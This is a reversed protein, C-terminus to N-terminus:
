RCDVKANQHLLQHAVTHLAVNLHGSVSIPEYIYTEIFLRSSAAALKKQSSDQVFNKRVNRVLCFQFTVM